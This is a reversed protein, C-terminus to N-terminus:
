LQALLTNTYEDKCYSLTKCVLASIGIGVALTHDVVAGCTRGLLSGLDKTVKLVVQVKEPTMMHLKLEHQLTKRLVPLPKNQPIENLRHKRKFYQIYNPRSGIYVSQKNAMSSHM